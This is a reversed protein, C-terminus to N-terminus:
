PPTIRIRTGFTLAGGCCLTKEASCDCQKSPAVVATGLKGAFKRPVNALIIVRSFDGADQVLQIPVPEQGILTEGTRHRAAARLAEAISANAIVQPTKPYRVIQARSRQRTQGAALNRTGTCDPRLPKSREGRRGCLTGLM